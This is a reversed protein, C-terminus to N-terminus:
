GLEPYYAEDWKTQGTKSKNTGVVGWGYKGHEEPKYGGQVDWSWQHDGLTGAKSKQYLNTEKGDDTEYTGKRRFRKAYDESEPDLGSHSAFYRKESMSKGQGTIEEGFKNQWTGHGLYEDEHINREDLYKLRAAASPGYATYERGKIIASHAPKNYEKDLDRMQKRYTDPLNSAWAKEARWGEGHYDKNRVYDNAAKREDSFWSPTPDDKTKQWPNFQAFAEPDYVNGTQEWMKNLAAQKDEYRNGTSEEPPPPPDNKYYNELSALRQDLLDRASKSETRGGELQSIRDEQWSPAKGELESLRGQIGSLDQPKRGELAAIRDEQWDSGKGELKSLRGQLGSLDVTPKNVISGRSELAKLREEYKEQALAYGEQQKNLAAIEEANIPKQGWANTEAGTSTKQPTVQPNNKEQEVKRNWDDLDDKHWWHEGPIVSEKLTDPDRTTGFNKLVWPDDDTTPRSQQTGRFEDYMREVEGGKEYDKLTNERQDRRTPVNDIVPWGKTSGTDGFNQLVNNSSSFQSRVDRNGSPETDFQRNFDRDQPDYERRGGYRSGRGGFDSEGTLLRMRESDGPLSRKGTLLDMRESDSSLRNGGTLTEWRDTDNRPPRVYDVRPPVNGLSGIGRVNDKPENWWDRKGGGRRGGRGGRRGGRRGEDRFGPRYTGSREDFDRSGGSWVRNDNLDRTPRTVLEKEPKRPTRGLWRAEADKYEQSLEREGTTPNTIWADPAPRM